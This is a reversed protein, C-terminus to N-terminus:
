KTSNPVTTPTRELASVRARLDNVAKESEALRRKTDSLERTVEGLSVSAPISTTPRAADTLFQNMAEVTNRGSASLADSTVFIRSDSKGDAGNAQIREVVLVGYRDTPVLQVVGRVVKGVTPGAVPLLSRYDLTDNVITQAADLSPGALREFRLSPLGDVMGGVLLLNSSDVGAASSRLMAVRSSEIGGDADFAYPQLLSVRRPNEGFLVPSMTGLTGSIETDSSSYRGFIMAQVAFLDVPYRLQPIVEPFKVKFQEASMFLSPFARAWVKAIPETIDIRVLTVQGTQADVFARVSNRMYNASTTLESGPTGDASAVRQSGPFRNSTTYADIVWTPRQKIVLLYPSSDFRLFPALARVREVVELHHVVKASTNASVLSPRAYRVAFAIRNALSGLSVGDIKKGTVVFGGRLEGNPARQFRWKEESRVPIVAPEAVIRGPSPRKLNTSPDVESATGKGGLENLAYGERTSEIHQRVHESEDEYTSGHSARVAIPVLVVTAIATAIWLIVGIRPLVFEDWLEVSSKGLTGASSQSSRNSVIASVAIAVAGLGLLSLAPARFKTDIDFLGVLNADASYAFRFRALWVTAAAAVCFWVFPGIFMNAVTRNIAVTKRTSREDLVLEVPDAGTRFILGTISSVAVTVLLVLATLALLWGCVVQLLPLRFVFFGPSAGLSTPGPVSERWGHIALLLTLSRDGLLPAVSLTGAIMLPFKIAPDLGRESIVRERRASGSGSMQLSVRRSTQEIRRISFWLPFFTFAIAVSWLAASVRLRYNSVAGFGMAHFWAHETFAEAIGGFITALITAGLLAMCVRRLWGSRVARQNESDPGVDSVRTQGRKRGRWFRLLATLESRRRV